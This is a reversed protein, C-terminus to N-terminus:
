VDTDTCVGFVTVSLGDRAIAVTMHGSAEEIVFSFARQAEVGQLSIVGDSREVSTFPTSRNQGSAKTTSVTKAKMDIVVFDPMSLEWPAVSFCEGNEFCVQVQGAACLLEDTGELNDAMAMSSALLGTCAIALNKM